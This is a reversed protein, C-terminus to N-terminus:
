ELDAVDLELPEEIEVISEKKIRPAFGVSPLKAGSKQRKADARRKAEIHNANAAIKRVVDDGIECSSTSTMSSGDDDDDTDRVEKRKRSKSCRKDNVMDDETMNALAADMDIRTYRRRRMLRGNVEFGRQVVEQLREASKTALDKEFSIVSDNSAASDDASEEIEDSEEDIDDFEVTADESSLLSADGIDDLVDRQSNGGNLARYQVVDDDNEDDRVVFNREAILDNRYQEAVESSMSELFALKEAKTGTIEKEIIEVMSKPSLVAARFKPSKIYVTVVGLFAANAKRTQDIRAVMAKGDKLAASAAAAVSEGNCKYTFKEFARCIKGILTELTEFSTDGAEKAHKLYRIIRAKSKMERKKKLMQRVGHVNDPLYNQIEACTTKFAADGKTESIRRFFRLLAALVLDIQSSFGSFVGAMRSAVMQTNIQAM